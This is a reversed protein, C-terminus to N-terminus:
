PVLKGAVIGAINMVVVDAVIKTIIGIRRPRGEYVGDKLWLTSFFRVKGLSFFLSSFIHLPM